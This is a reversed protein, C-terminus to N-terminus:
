LLTQKSLTKPLAQASKHARRVKAIARANKCGIMTLM